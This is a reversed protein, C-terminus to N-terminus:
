VYASCLLCLVNRGLQSCTVEEEMLSDPLGHGTPHSEFLPGRYFMLAVTSLRVREMAHAVVTRSITFILLPWASRGVSSRESLRIYPQYESTLTREIQGILGLHKVSHNGICFRYRYKNVKSMNRSPPNIRNPKNHKNELGVM